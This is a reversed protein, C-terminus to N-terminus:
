RLLNLTSVDNRASPVAKGSDKPMLTPKWRRSFASAASADSLDDLMESYQCCRHATGGRQPRM